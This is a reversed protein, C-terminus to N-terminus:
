NGGKNWKRVANVKIAKNILKISIDAYEDVDVKNYCSGDCAPIRIKINTQEYVKSTGTKKGCVVCKRSESSSSHFVIM